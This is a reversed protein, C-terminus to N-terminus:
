FRSCWKASYRNERRTHKVKEWTRDSVMRDSYSAEIDLIDVARFSSIEVVVVSRAKSPCRLMVVLSEPRILTSDFVSIYSWSASFPGFLKGLRHQHYCGAEWSYRERASILFFFFSHLTCIRAQKGKVKSWSFCLCTEHLHEHSFAYVYPCLSSLDHNSCLYCNEHYISATFSLWLNGGDRM